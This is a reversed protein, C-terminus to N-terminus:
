SIVDNTKLCGPGPRFHVVSCWPLCFEVKLIFDNIGFSWFIYDASHHHVSPPPSHKVTVCPVVGAATSFFLNQITLDRPLLSYALYIFIPSETTNLRNRTKYSFFYVIKVM